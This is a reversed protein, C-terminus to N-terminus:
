CTKRYPVEPLYTKWTAKPLPGFQTCFATKIKKPAILHTRLHGWYDVAQVASGDPTFSLAAIDGSINGAPTYFGTLPQELPQRAAVDWLQIDATDDDAVAGLRGDPSFATAGRNVNFGLRADYVRKLTRIDWFSVNETYPVAALGDKSVANVTTIGSDAAILRKGSAVELLGHDTGAALVSRGDPSFVVRADHDSPERTTFTRQVATARVDWLELLSHSQENALVAVTRGDPSFALDVLDHHRTRLTAKKVAPTSAVDWLDIDGNDHTWALLRGDRSLRQKAGLENKDPPLTTRRLHRVADWVEWGGPSYTDEALLTSGDQSFQANTWGDHLAPARITDLSLVMTGADGGGCRLTRDGPGFRLLSTPLGELTNVSCAIGAYKMVPQPVPNATEWIMGSFAVYRGDSSFVPVQTGQDFAATLSRWSVEVNDSRDLPVIGMRSALAPRHKPSESFALLRGDPSM